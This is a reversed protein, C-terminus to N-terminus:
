FTINPSVNPGIPASSALFSIGLLTEILFESLLHVKDTSIDPLAEMTKVVSSPSIILSKQLRKVVNKAM